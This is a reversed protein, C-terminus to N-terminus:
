QERSERARERQVARIRLFTGGVVVAGSVIIIIWGVRGLGTATIEVPAEPGFRTGEQTALQARVMVVGNAASHLTVNVTRQEGPELTVLESSEVWIRNPSNSTFNVKVTVKVPLPNTITVPFENKESGMVFQSSVSLRVKTADLKESPTASVFAMAEAESNFGSSFSRAAIAANLAKRDTGTIEELLQSSDFMGQIQSRLKPWPTAQTTTDAYRAQERPEPLTAATEAGELLAARDIDAASRVLHITPSGDLLGEALRRGAIQAETLTNGPGIGPLVLSSVRLAHAKVSHDTTSIMGSSTFNNGFVKKFGHLALTLALDQSDNDGLDAVLPADAIAGLEATKLATESWSLATEFSSLDGTAHLRALDPNGFPLRMVRGASILTNLRNLFDQANQSPPTRTGAVTHEEALARVEVLLSPDLLTYAVPKEAAALLESLEGVLQSELSDNQFDSGDLLTPQAALKVVNSVPLPKKSAIALVRGRGATLHNGDPADARLHVGLLYASDAKPLNLDQVTASVTFRMSAGPALEGLDQYNNAGVLRRGLPQTPESTLTQQLDDHETIPATSRWFHVSAKSLSHDTNNRVTGSITITQDPHSLDLLQPSVSSINVDVSGEARAPSAVVGTIVAALLLVWTMLRRMVPGDYYAPDGSRSTSTAAARDPATM